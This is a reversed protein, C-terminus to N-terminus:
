FPIVSICRATCIVGRVTIESTFKRLKKKKKLVSM